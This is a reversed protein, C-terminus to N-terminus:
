DSEEYLQKLTISVIIETILDVLKQEKENDVDIQVEKINRDILDDGIKEM